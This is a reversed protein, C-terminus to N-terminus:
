IIISTNTPFSCNTIICTGSTVALTTNLYVDNPLDVKIFGFDPVFSDSTFNFAYTVNSMFNIKNSM